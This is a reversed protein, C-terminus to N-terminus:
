QSLRRQLQRAQAAVLVLDIMVMALPIPCSMAHAGPTECSCTRCQASRLEEEVAIVRCVLDIRERSRYVVISRLLRYIPLSPVRRQVIAASRSIVAERAGLLRLGTDM